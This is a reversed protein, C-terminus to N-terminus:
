CPVPHPDAFAAVSHHSTGKFKEFPDYVNKYQLFFFVEKLGKVRKHKKEQLTKKFGCCAPRALNLVCVCVCAETSYGPCYSGLAKLLSLAPGADM